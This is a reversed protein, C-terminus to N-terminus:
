RLQALPPSGNAARAENLIRGSHLRYHPELFGDLLEQFVKHKSRPIRDYFNTNLAQVVAEATRELMERGQPTILAYTARRDSDTIERRLLGKRQLADVQRSIRSQSLLTLKALDIFRIRGGANDVMAVVEYEALSLLDRGGLERDMAETITKYAKIYAYWLRQSEDPLEDFSHADTTEDPRAEQPVVDKSTKRVSSRTKVAM